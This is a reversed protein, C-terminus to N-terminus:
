SGQVLPFYQVRCTAVAQPILNRTQPFKLSVYQKHRICLELDNAPAKTQTIYTTKCRNTVSTKQFCSVKGALFLNEQFQQHHKFLNNLPKYAWSVYNPFFGSEANTRRAHLIQILWQVGLSGHEKGLSAAIGSILIGNNPCSFVAANTPISKGLVMNRQLLCPQLTNM